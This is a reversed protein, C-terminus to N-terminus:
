TAKLGRRREWWPQVVEGRRIALWVFWAGAATGIVLTIASAELGFDGGTLLPSGSLKSQILGHVAIGSDPVGFIGGEALNWGAHIGVPVWLNRTLMYAGGLLVGAEVAICLDAIVTSNPNYYHAFGFVVSSVALALWSGAFEEIWRFLIGRCLIEEMFGPLIASAILEHTLDSPSGVSTMRYSGLAAAAAVILSIIGSGLLLGIGLKKPASALPLDDRPCEGLRGIILKYAGIVLVVELLYTVDIATRLRVNRLVHELLYGGVLIGIAVAGLYVAISFMMATLPFHVIRWFILPEGTKLENM